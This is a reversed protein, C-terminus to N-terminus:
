HGGEPDGQAAAAEREQLSRRPAWASEPLHDSIIDVTLRRRRGGDDGMVDIEADKYYEDYGTLLFSNIEGTWQSSFM